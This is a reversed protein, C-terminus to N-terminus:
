VLPTDISGLDHGPPLAEEKLGLASLAGQIRRALGLDIEGDHSTVRCGGRLQAPDAVLTIRDTDAGIDNEVIAIDDPHLHLRVRTASESVMGVAERVAPLMAQPNITLEARLMQKALRAALTLLQDAIGAERAALEARFQEVLPAMRSELEAAMRMGIEEAHAFGHAYGDARAELALEHVPVAPPETEVFALDYEPEPGAPEETEAQEPEPEPEPAKTLRSRRTFPSLAFSDDPPRPGRAYAEAFAQEAAKRRAARVAEVFSLTQIELVEPTWAQVKIRTEAQTESSIVEARAVVEAPVIPEFSHTM